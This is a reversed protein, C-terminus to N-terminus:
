AWPPEPPLLRRAAPSPSAPCYRAPHPASLGPARRTPTAPPLVGPGPAANPAPNGRARRQARGRLLRSLRGLGAAPQVGCLTRGDAQKQPGNGRRGARGSGVRWAARPARRPRAARQSRGRPAPPGGPYPVPLPTAPAPPAASPHCPGRRPGGRLGRPQRRAAPLFTPLGPWSLPGPARAPQVSLGRPEPSGRRTPRPTGGLHRSGAPQPGGPSRPWARGPLQGPPWQAGWGQGCRQGALVAQPVQVAIAGPMRAKVALEEGEAAPGAVLPVAAAVQGQEDCLTLLLVAQGEPPSGGPALVRELWRGLPRRPREM